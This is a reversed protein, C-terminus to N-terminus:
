EKNKRLGVYKMIKFAIKLIKTIVISILRIQKKSFTIRKYM